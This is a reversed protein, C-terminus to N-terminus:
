RAQRRSCRSCRACSAATDPSPTTRPPPRQEGREAASLSDSLLAAMAPVAALAEWAAAQLVSSSSSSSGSGGLSANHAQVLQMSIQAVLEARGEWSGYWFLNAVGAPCDLPAASLAQAASRVAAVPGGPRSLQDALGQQLSPSLLANCVRGQSALLVEVGLPGSATAAHEATVAPPSGIALQPLCHHLLLSVATRQLEPAATLAAAHRRFPAELTVAETLTALCVM